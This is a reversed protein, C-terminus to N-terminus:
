TQHAKYNRLGGKGARGFRQASVYCLPPSLEECTAAPFLIFHKEKETLQVWAVSLFIHLFQLPYWFAAAKPWPLFCSLLRSLLHPAPHCHPFSWFAKKRSHANPTDQCAFPFVWWQYWWCVGRLLSYMQWLSFREWYGYTRNIFLGVAKM